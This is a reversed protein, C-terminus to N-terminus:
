AGQTEHTWDFILSEGTAMRELHAVVVAQLQKLSECSDAGLAVALGSEAVSLHCRGISLEIEGEQEDFRVPFKHAWHKCLRTILRSPRECTVMARLENGKPSQM